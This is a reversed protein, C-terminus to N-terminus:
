ETASGGEPAAPPTAPAGTDTAPTDTATDETPACGVTLTGLCLITLLTGLKKM